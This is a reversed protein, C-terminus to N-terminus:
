MYDKMDELPADFDDAMWIKGKLLGAQRKKSPTQTQVIAHSNSQSHKNILYEAYDLVAVKIEKPMITIARFLETDLADINQPKHNNDIRQVM